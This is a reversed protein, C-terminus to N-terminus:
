LSYFLSHLQWGASVSTTGSETNPRVKFEIYGNTQGFDVSVKKTEGALITLSDNIVLGNVADSPVKVDVDFVANLVAGKSDTLQEPSTYVKNFIVDGTM